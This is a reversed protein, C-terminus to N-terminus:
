DTYGLEKAKALAADAEKIMGIGNLANSKCYWAEAYSPNLKIVEEFAKLAEDNLGRMGLMLGKGQWALYSQPDIKIAEECAGIAEEYKGEAHLALCKDILNISKTSTFESDNPLYLTFDKLMKMGLM